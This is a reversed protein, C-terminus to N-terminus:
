VDGVHRAVPFCRTLRTILMELLPPEKLEPLYQSITIHGGVSAIIPARVACNIITGSAVPWYLQCRVKAFKM